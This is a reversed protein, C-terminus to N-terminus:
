CGTESGLTCPSAPSTTTCHEYPGTGGCSYGGSSDWNCTTCAQVSPTQQAAIVAALALAATRVIKQAEM